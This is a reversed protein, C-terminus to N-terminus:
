SHVETAQLRYGLGSLEAGDIVFNRGLDDAVHMGAGLAIPVSPPLYIMWGVDKKTGTPLPSNISTAGKGFIIACPWGIMVGANNAASTGLIDMYGAPNNCVGSYGMAGTSPGSQVASEVRITRDCGIAMIPLLSQKAAIFLKQPDPTNGQAILYDGPQALTADFDAYWMPSIYNSPRKYVNDGANFAAPLYTIFQSLPNAAIVPRFLNYTYGIRQAAKGRGAYIKANITAADMDAACSGRALM